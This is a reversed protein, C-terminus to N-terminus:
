MGDQKRLIISLLDPPRFHMRNCQIGHPLDNGSRFKVSYKERKCPPVEIQFWIRFDIIHLNIFNWVRIGSRLSCGRLPLHETIYIM